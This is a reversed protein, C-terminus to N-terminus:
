GLFRDVLREALAAAVWSVPPLLLYLLLRRAHGVTFPLDALEEVERRYALLQLLEFDEIQQAMPSERLADFDGDIARQVIAVEAAKMSRIKARWVLAPFLLVATAGVANGVCLLTILWVPVSGSPLAQGLAVAIVINGIMLLLVANLGFRFLPRGCQEDFLPPHWVHSAAERMVRATHVLLFFSQPWIVLSALALVGSVLDFTQWDGEAIRSWRSSNLEQVGIAAAACLWSMVWYSRGEYHSLRWNWAELEEPSGRMDPRLRDFTRKAARVFLPVAAGYVAVAWLAAFPALRELRGRRHELGSEAAGVVAAVVAVVACLIVLWLSNPGPLRDSWRLFWVRELDVVRKGRSV